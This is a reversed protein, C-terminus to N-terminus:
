FPIFLSSPSPPSSNLPGPDFIKDGADGEDGYISKKRFKEKRVGRRRSSYIADDPSNMM